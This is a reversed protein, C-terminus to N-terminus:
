FAVEAGAAAPLPLGSLVFDLFGSWRTEEVEKFNGRRPEHMPTDSKWSKGAQPEQIKSAEIHNM